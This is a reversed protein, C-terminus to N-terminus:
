LSEILRAEKNKTDLGQSVSAFAVHDGADRASNCPDSMKSSRPDPLRAYPYGLLKRSFSTAILFSFRSFIEFKPPESGALTKNFRAYVEAAVQTVLAKTPAIYVLISDDSERLTKEM